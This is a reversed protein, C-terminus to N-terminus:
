AFHMNNIKIILCNGETKLRIASFTIMQNILKQMSLSIICIKIKWAYKAKKHM